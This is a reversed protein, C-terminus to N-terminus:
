RGDPLQRQRVTGGPAVRYSYRGPIRRRVQPPEVRQTQQNVSIGDASTVSNTSVARSTTAFVTVLVVSDPRGGMELEAAEFGQRALAEIATRASDSDSALGALTLPFFRYRAHYRALQVRIEDPVVMQKRVRQRYHLTTDAVPVTGTATAADYRQSWVFCGTLGPTLLLLAAFRRFAAPLDPMFDPMGDLM